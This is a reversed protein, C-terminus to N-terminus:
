LKSLNREMHMITEITTILSKEDVGEFIQGIIDASNPSQNDNEQCFKMCKVTLHIRQKRKDKQDPVMTVFGKQELKLLIQKVNQHSSGMVDSLDNLTPAEKFLNICIIAFFQKWTIDKFYNDAAAQFRNDFASLLGLLFSQPPMQGFEVKSMNMAEDYNM